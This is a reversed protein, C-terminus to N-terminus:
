RDLKIDKGGLSINITQQEGSHEIDINERLNLDRSMIMPNFAGVSAGEFKQNYITERIRTLIQSYQKSMEDDKGELSKELDHIYAVNVGLFLCLGQLTYPRQTPIQILQGAMEGSKIAEYKTWPNQDVFDFYECAASLLDNPDEYKKNPGNKKRNLYFQNGIRKDQKNNAEM